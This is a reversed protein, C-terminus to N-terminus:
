KSLYYRYFASFLPGGIFVAGIVINSILPGSDNRAGNKKTGMKRFYCGGFGMILDTCGKITHFPWPYKKYLDYYTRAFMVMIVAIMVAVFFGWFWPYKMVSGKFTPPPKNKMREM